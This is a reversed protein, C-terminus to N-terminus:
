LLSRQATATRFLCLGWAVPKGRLRHSQALCPVPLRVVHLGAVRGLLQRYLRSALWLARQHQGLCPYPRTPM